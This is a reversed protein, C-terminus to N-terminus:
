RAEGKGRKIALSNREVRRPPEHPLSDVGARRVYARVCARVGAYVFARVRVRVGRTRSM